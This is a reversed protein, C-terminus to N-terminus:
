SFKVCIIIMVDYLLEIKLKLLVEIKWLKINGNIFSLMLLVMKDRIVLLNSEFSCYIEIGKIFMDWVFFYFGM